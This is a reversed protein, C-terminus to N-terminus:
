SMIKSQNASSEATSLSSAAALTRNLPIRIAFVAVFSFAHCTLRLHRSIV